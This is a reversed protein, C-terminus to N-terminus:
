VILSMRDLEQIGLTVDCVTYGVECDTKIAHTSASYDVYREIKAPMAVAPTDFIEINRSSIGLTTAIGDRMFDDITEIKPEPQLYHNNICKLVRLQKEGLEERYAWTKTPIENATCYPVATRGYNKLQSDETVQKIFLVTSSTKHLWTDAATTLAGLTIAIMLVYVAMKLLSSLTRGRRNRGSLLYYQVVKWLSSVSGSGLISILQAVQLATPIETARKTSGQSALHWKRSLIYSLIAM